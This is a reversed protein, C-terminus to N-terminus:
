GLEILTDDPPVVGYYDYGGWDYVAIWVDSKSLMLGMDWAVNHAVDFLEPPTVAKRGADTLQHVAREVAETAMPSAPPGGTM